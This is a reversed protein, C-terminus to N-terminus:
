AARRNRSSPQPPPCGAEFWARAAAPDIYPTAGIRVVPCGRDIFRRATRVSRRIDRAFEELTMLGATVSVPQQTDPM